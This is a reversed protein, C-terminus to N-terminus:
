PYYFNLSFNNLRSIKKPAPLNKSRKLVRGAQLKDQAQRLVIDKKRREEEFFSATEIPALLFHLKIKSFKFFASNFIM